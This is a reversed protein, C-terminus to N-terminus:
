HLVPATDDGSQEEGEKVDNALAEALEEDGQHRDFNEDSHVMNPALLEPPFELPESPFQERLEAFLATMIEKWDPRIWYVLTYRGFEKEVREWGEHEKDSCVREFAMKAIEQYSFEQPFPEYTMFHELTMPVEENVTANVEIPKGNLVFPCNDGLALEGEARICVFNDNGRFYVPVRWAAVGGPAKEPGFYVADKYTITFEEPSCGTMKALNAACLATTAGIDFGERLDYGPFVEVVEVPKFRPEIGKAATFLMMTGTMDTVGVNLFHMFDQVRADPYGNESAASDLMAGAENIDKAGVLGCYYQDGPSVFFFDTFFFIKNVMSASM